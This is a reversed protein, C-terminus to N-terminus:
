LGKTSLFLMVELLFIM